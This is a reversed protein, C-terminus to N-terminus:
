DECRALIENIYRSRNPVSIGRALPPREAPKKNKKEYIKEEDVVINEKIYAILGEDKQEKLEDRLDSLHPM